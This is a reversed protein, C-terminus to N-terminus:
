QHVIVGRRRYRISRPVTVEVIERTFTDFRHLRAAARHSAVCMEGGGMSAALLHQHWSAPAGAIRYVSPAVREILGTRVRRQLMRDTVGREHAQRRSFLGHQRAALAFM